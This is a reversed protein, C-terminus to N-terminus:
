PMMAPDNRNQTTQAPVDASEGDEAVMVGPAISNDNAPTQAFDVHVDQFIAPLLDIHATLRHQDNTMFAWPKMRRRVQGCTGSTDKSQEQAVGGVINRPCLFVL